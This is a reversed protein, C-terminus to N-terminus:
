SRDEYAPEKTMRLVMVRERPIVTKITKGGEVSLDVQVIIFCERDVYARDVDEISVEHGDVFIIDVNYIM